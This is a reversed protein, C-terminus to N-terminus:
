NFTASFLLGYAITKVDGSDTIDGGDCNAYLMQGAVGLGWENSVWWEKGVMLSGGIGSDSKFTGQLTNDKLETRAAGITASIYANAPMFYYTMGVGALTTTLDGDLTGKDSGFKMSPDALSVGTAEFHLIMNERVAGGIMFSFMGGTDDLEAEPLVNDTVTTKAQGIGPALRLFFGDHTQENAFVTSAILCCVILLWITKM